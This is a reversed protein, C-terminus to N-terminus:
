NSKILSLVDLVHDKGISNKSHSLLDNDITIQQNIIDM